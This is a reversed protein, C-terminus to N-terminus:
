SDADRRSPSVQEKEAKPQLADRLQILERLREYWFPAGFTLFMATILVGILAEARTFYAWGHAWPTIDYSALRDTLRGLQQGSAEIAKEQLNTLLKEYEALLAGREPAPLPALVVQLEGVVDARSEGLGSARELYAAHNPHKATLEALAMESVNQYNTSAGMLPAAEAYLRESAKAASARYQPDTSLRKLLELASVQFYGAVLFACAITILRISLIFRKNLYAEMRKFLISLKKREVEGLEIGSEKLHEILEEQEVWSITPSILRAILGPSEFKPVFKSSEIVEGALTEPSKIERTKSEQPTEDKRRGSENRSKLLSEILSHLGIRLNRARLAFLNQLFQVLATVILSLVLMIGAFGLFTNLTDLIM